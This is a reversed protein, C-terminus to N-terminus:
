EDPHVTGSSQCYSKMDGFIRAQTPCVEVCAAALGKVLRHYCFTCKDATENGPPSLSCRLSLGPHLVPMRYLAQTDVLM